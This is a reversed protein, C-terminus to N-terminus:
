KIQKHISQLDHLLTSLWIGGHEVEYFQKYYPWTDVKSRINELNALNYVEIKMGDEEIYTDPAKTPDDLNELADEIDEISDMEIDVSGRSWWTKAAIEINPNTYAAKKTIRNATALMIDPDLDKIALSLDIQDFVEQTSQFLGVAAPVTPRLILSENRLSSSTMQALISASAVAEIDDATIKKGTMFHSHHSIYSISDGLDDHFGPATTQWAARMAYCALISRREIPQPAQENSGPIESMTNTDSVSTTTVLMLM